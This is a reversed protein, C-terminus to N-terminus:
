DEGGLPTLSVTGEDNRLLWIHRNPFADTVARDEARGLRHAWVIEASQMDSRNYVYFRPDAANVNTTDVFIIDKGASAVLKNEIDRRSALSSNDIPRYAAALRNRNEVEIWLGSLFGAAVAFPVAAVMARQFGGREAFAKAALAMLLVCLGAIPAIFRDGTFTTLLLGSFSTAIIALTYIYERSRRLVALLSGCILLLLLLPSRTVWAPYILLREFTTRIAASPTGYDTQLNSYWRADLQELFPPVVRTPISAKEFVFLPTQHYQRHQLSYPMVFADGTVALNYSGVSVLSLVLAIGLVGAARRHRSDSRDRKILDAAYLIILVATLILGEFPRSHFLFFTGAAWAASYIVKPDRRLRFFAGISIAGGIMAVHGGWYYGSWIINLPSCIWLLTGWMAWQPSFFARLLWMLSLAALISALWVGAIPYGSAVQGAALFVGQLPPYKSAYVPEVLVHYSEFSRPSVPSPNALRGHAITDAAFLYVFEDHTSPEPIGTMLTQFVFLLACAAIALVSNKGDSKFLTARTQKILNLNVLRIVLLGVAFIAFVLVQLHWYNARVFEALKLPIM